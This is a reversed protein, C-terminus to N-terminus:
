RGLAAVGEVLVKTLLLDVLGLVIGIIIALVVVMRTAKVLELQTPWSVKSMEARVAVLFDRSGRLWRV